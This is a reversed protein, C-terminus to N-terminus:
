HCWLWCQGKCFGLECKQNRSTVISIHSGFRSNYVGFRSDLKKVVWCRLFPESGNSFWHFGLFVYVKREWKSFLVLIFKQAHLFSFFSEGHSPHVCMFSWSCSPSHHPFISFTTTHGFPCANKTNVQGLLWFCKEGFIPKGLNSNGGWVREMRTCYSNWGIKPLILHNPSHSLFPLRCNLPNKWQCKSKGM